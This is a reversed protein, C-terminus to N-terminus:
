ARAGLGDVLRDFSQRCATYDAAGAPYEGFYSWEVRVVIDELSSRGDNSLPASRLVERSTLCDALPETVRRRIEALAELLLMHMAEVFREQRALDDAAAALGGPAAEPAKRAGDMEDWKEKWGLPLHHRFLFLLLVTLLIILVITVPWSPLGLQIDSWSKWRYDKLDEPKLPLETQLDKERTAEAAAKEIKEVPLTTQLDRDRVSDAAAKEIKEPERKLHDAEAAPAACVASALILAIVAPLIHLCCLNRALRMWRAGAVQQGLTGARLTEGYVPVSEKARLM